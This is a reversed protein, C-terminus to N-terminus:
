DGRINQLMRYNDKVWNAVDLFKGKKRIRGTDDRVVWDDYEQEIPFIMNKNVSPGWVIIQREEDGIHYAEVGAGWFVVAEKGYKEDYLAGRIDRTNDLEFAFNYGPYKKRSEESKWTTLGLGRWMEEHGFEFGSREISNADDTFHVLWTPKVVKEYTLHEYAPADFEYGRPMQECYDKFEEKMEPTAVELWKELIEYDPAGEDEGFAKRLKNLAEPYYSELFGEIHHPYEYPDFGERLYDRLYAMEPSYAIRYQKYWNM